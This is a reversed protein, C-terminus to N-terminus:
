AVHKGTGAKIIWFGRQLDDETGSDTTQSKNINLFDTGKYEKLM